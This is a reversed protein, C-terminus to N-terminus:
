RATRMAREFAEVFAPIFRTRATELATEHFQLSPPLVVRPRFVYLLKVQSRKGRGVRRFIFGRGDPYRISFTRKLGRGVTALPGRGHVRLGLAGIRDSASVIDAKTRRADIPIALRSGSRPTKWGGQEYKALFDRKPEISVTAVIEGKRYDARQERPFYIGRKVFTARRLRFRGELGQQQAEQFAFAVANVALARAFPLQRRAYDDLHTVLEEPDLVISVNM